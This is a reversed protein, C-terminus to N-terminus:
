RRQCQRHAGKEATAEQGADVLQGEQGTVSLLCGHRNRHRQALLLPTEAQAQQWWQDVQIESARTAKATKQGRHRERTATTVNETAVEVVVKAEAPATREPPCQQQRDKIEWYEQCARFGEFGGFSEVESVKPQNSFHVECENEFKSRGSRSTLSSQRSTTLTRALLVGPNKGSNPMDKIGCAQQMDEREVLLSGLASSHDVYRAQKGRQKDETTLRKLGAAELQLAVVFSRAEIAEYEAQASELTRQRCKDKEQKVRLQEAKVEFGQRVVLQAWAKARACQEELASADYLQPHRSLLSTVQDVAEQQVNAPACTRELHARYMNQHHQFFKWCEDTHAARMKKWAGEVDYELSHEEFDAPTALRKYEKAWQWHKDKESQLDRHMQRKRALEAYKEAIAQQTFLKAM